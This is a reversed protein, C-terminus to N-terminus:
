RAGEGDDVNPAGHSTVLDRWTERERSLHMLEQIGSLGSTKVVNEIYNIPPRGKRRKAVVKGMLVTSMLNTSTSRNAHGIYRLRRRDIEHIIQRELSLETLISENTRKDKWSVRLLRRYLWMEAARLKDAEEKRLTWAECGYLLVPWILCKLMKLKLPVPIGRDKWTNNFQVMKQKTMAIRTKIDQM